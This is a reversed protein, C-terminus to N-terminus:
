MESLATQSLQCLQEHCHGNSAILNGWQRIDLNNYLLPSGDFRTLKGGAETLIIEPACYDWDKPASRGSLAIYFDAQAEVIAGFKGGISGVSREQINPLRSLIFDLEATRHTRSAIAVMDQVEKKDSVQVRRKQGDQTELHTGQNAIASFLKGQSPCAVLGLVPRQQYALGIHVAFEGTHKIFGSTGDLPDIIWVWDYELRTADDEAEESLYAFDRTGLQYKLQHLIYDNAAFDASTVKGEDGGKSTIEISKPSRYYTMIIDAAGWAIPRVIELLQNLNQM